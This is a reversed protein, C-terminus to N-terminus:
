DFTQWITLKLQGDTRGFNSYISFKPNRLNGVERKNKKRTKTQKIKTIKHTFSLITRRQNFM